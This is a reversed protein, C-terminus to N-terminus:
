RGGRLVFNQRPCPGHTQPAGMAAEWSPNVCVRFAFSRSPPDVIASAFLVGGPLEHSSSVAALAFVRSGHAQVFWWAQVPALSAGPTHRLRVSLSTRGRGLSRMSLKVRPDVTVSLQAPETQSDGSVSVRLRTNGEAALPAFVFSGDGEVTTHGVTGYRRYPYPAAELVVEGGASAGLLHGRVTTAEGITMESPAALAELQAQGRAAPAAEGGGIVLTAALVGGLRAALAGRAARRNGQM